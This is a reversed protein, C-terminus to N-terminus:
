VEDFRSGERSPDRSLVQEELDDPLAEHYSNDNDEEPLEGSEPIASLMATGAIDELVSEELDDAGQDPNKNDNMTKGM